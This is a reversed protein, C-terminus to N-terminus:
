KIRENAWILTKNEEEVNITSMLFKFKIETKNARQDKDKDKICRPIIKIQFNIFIFYNQNIESNCIQQRYDVENPSSAYRHKQQWPVNNNIVLMLREITKGM